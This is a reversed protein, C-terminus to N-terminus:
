PQADEDETDNVNEDEIPPADDANADPERADSPQADRESKEDATTDEENEPEAAPEDALTPQRDVRPIGTWRGIDIRMVKGTEHTLWITQTVPASGDPLYVVFVTNEAESDSPKALEIDSFEPRKALVVEETAGEDSMAAEPKDRSVSIIKDIALEAWSRDVSPPADNDDEGFEADVERKGDREQKAGVESVIMLGAASEFRVEVGVGEVMAYSRAQLLQTEIAEATNELKKADSLSLMAPLAIASLALVLALALLMELLTVGRRM